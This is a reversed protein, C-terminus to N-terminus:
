EINFKSLVNILEQHENDSGDGLAMLAKEEENESDIDLFDEDNTDGWVPEKAVM